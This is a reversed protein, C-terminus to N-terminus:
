LRMMDNYIAFISLGLVFVFGIKFIFEQINIALQKGIIIEIMYILIHGGDLVPIPLLNMIALGISILALFEAFRVIGDSMAHGGVKAISIPGGLNYPSISGTVIQYLSSLNFRIVGYCQIFAYRLSHLMDYKQIFSNQTLLTQDLTPMIGLMGVIQGSADGKGEPIISFDLDNKGRKIKIRLNEGPSSHITEAVRFWNTVSESNIAVIQDNVKLGAKDAVSRPEVYSIVPLYLIPYLGITELYVEKDFHQKLIAGNITLTQISNVGDISKLQMNFQSKYIVAKNFQENADEWTGTQHGDVAIIRSPVALDSKITNQLITPNTSSIVPKLETIGILAIIYYVAVAFLINFLPGALAILIKQYPSKNNFALHKENENVVGEREDLMRVYGGFPILSLRWENSLSKYSFIKPGFGVSFTLIKVNFMRAFLYHGYEHVVVLIGITLLFALLSLM